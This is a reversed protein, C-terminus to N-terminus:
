HRLGGPQSLQDPLQPFLRHQRRAGTASVGLQTPWVGSGANLTFMYSNAEGPLRVPVVLVRYASGMSGATAQAAVPGAARDAPCDHEAQDRRSGYERPM